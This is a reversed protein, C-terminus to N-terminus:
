TAGGTVAAVAQPYVEAWRGRSPAGPEWLDLYYQYAGSEDHVAPLAGAHTWLLLRAVACALGDGAPTAFLEWVAIRNPAVKAAACLKTAWASTAAGTLVGDLAEHRGDEDQWYSHAPGDNAQVRYTWASEQGAIATLMVEVQTRNADTLLPTSGLVSEMWALSPRVITTLFDTANM